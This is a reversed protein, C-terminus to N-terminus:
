YCTLFFALIAMLYTEQELSIPPKPQRLRLNCNYFVNQSAKLMVSIAASLFM